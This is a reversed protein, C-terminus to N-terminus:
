DESLRKLIKYVKHIPLGVVTFYNGEIKEIFAGFSGQIAYGGAKDYAENSVIWMKLEEDSIDNIYVATVDNEIIEEVKGSKESIIAIATMVDHKANRLEKLMCMADDYDKPKGYIKGDKVVVTDSGIVIRDGTTQDFVSKAKIYALKKVQEDVTLKKDIKEEVNSVIVDFNNTVM